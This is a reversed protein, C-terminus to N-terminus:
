RGPQRERIEQLLWGNGDPDTFSTVGRGLRVSCASGPPTLQM